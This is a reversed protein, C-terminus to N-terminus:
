PSLKRLEHLHDAWWQMMSVRESWHEGRAYARRVENTDIHALQREIADSNWKGSENLLTSATARFGHATVEDKSYGIRRLAANMTNESMARRVTRVCPFVHESRGTLERLEGLIELAQRSLPVRHPRRMKMRSAPITWVAAPLDFEAWTASRLEGPRPFLLILLQLAAKTITQGQFDDVARLLAGLGKPDTIAARHQVKPAVLAGRLAFTPDNEARATAIAYRFVAGIKSRLRTATEHHGRREVRQLIALVEAPTIEAIPRNGLEPYAMGLLWETKAITIPARGERKAKEILEGALANFTNATLITAVLKKQRKLSSPDLGAALDTKAADRKERAKALSITPYAGISLLREKTALRYKLRWLRSGNPNVLLYLGGSDSLKYPKEKPKASRIAADNLPM